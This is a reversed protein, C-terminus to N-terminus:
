PGSWQDTTSARARATSVANCEVLWYLVVRVCGVLLWCCCCGDMWGVIGCCSGM